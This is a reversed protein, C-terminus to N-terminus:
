RIARKASQIREWSQRIRAESIRGNKVLQLLASYVLEAQTARGKLPNAKVQAQFAGPLVKGLSNQLLAKSLAAQDVNKGDKADQMIKEMAQMPSQPTGQQASLGQGLINLANLGMGTDQQAVTAAPESIFLIDVGATIALLISDHLSYFPQLARLDPSLIIGKFGLHGRLIGQLVVQSLPVPYLADYGRHYVLAPQMAGGFNQAISKVYPTSEAQQWSAALDPITQLFNPTTSASMAFGQVVSGTGPFNRLCPLVKTALLGRSFALVHATVQAPNPGFSRFRKGINESLANVNVDGAPGLVFNIGMSAMEIGARRAAIETNEVTGQGLVAAAALGEFGLDKRLSQVSGGEHEVAVWLPLANTPVARQLTATLQRLQTPSAINGQPGLPVKLGQAQTQSLFGAQATQSGHAGQGGQILALPQVGQGMSGFSTSAQAQLPLAELFVGGVKGQKILTLIPADNELDTGTFGGMIMQGLMIELSPYGGVQNTQSAAPILGQQEQPLPRGAQQGQAPALPVASPIPAQIPAIPVQNGSQAPILAPLANQGAGSFPTHPVATAPSTHINQESSRAVPAVPAVPTVPTATDYVPIQAGSDTKPKIQTSSSAPASQLFSPLRSEQEPVSPLARGQGATGLSPPSSTPSPMTSSPTSPAMPLVPVYPAHGAGGQIGQANGKLPAPFYKQMQEPTIEIGPLADIGPVGANQAASSTSTSTAAQACVVCFFLMVGFCLLASLFKKGLLAKKQQQKHM